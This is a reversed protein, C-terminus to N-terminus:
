DETNVRRAAPTNLVTAIAGPIDYNCGEKLSLWAWQGAPNVELFWLKGDTDEIFDVAGYNLNMLTMLRMLRNRTGLPLSYRQWEPIVEEARIRWDIDKDKSADRAAAFCKNAVVIVRVDLAKKVKEQFIMPCVCLNYLAAQDQLDVERTVVTAGGQEEQISAARQMKSVIEPTLKAMELVMDGDNTFTTLPMDLGVEQALRTQVEKFSGKAVDEWRDLKFCSLSALTGTLTHLSEEYCGPRYAGLSDPMSTGAWNRRNWLAAVHMDVDTIGWDRGRIHVASRNPGGGMQYASTVRMGMPYHDTNLRYVHTGMDMLRQMVPLTHYDDNEITVILVAM